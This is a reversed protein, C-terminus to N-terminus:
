FGDDAQKLQWWVRKYTRSLTGNVSNHNWNYDRVCKEAEAQSNCAYLKKKEGSAKPHLQNPLEGVVIYNHERKAEERAINALLVNTISTGGLFMLKRPMM